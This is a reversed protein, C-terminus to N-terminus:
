GAAQGESDSPTETPPTETPPTETPPPTASPMPDPPADAPPEIPAKGADIAAVRADAARGELEAMLAELELRRIERRVADDPPAVSAADAGALAAGDPANSRVVLDATSTPETDVGALWGVLRNPRQIQRRMRLDPDVQTVGPISNDVSADADRLVAGCSPCREADKPVAASCWPCRPETVPVGGTTETV